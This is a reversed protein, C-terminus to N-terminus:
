HAWVPNDKVLTPFELFSVGGKALWGLTNSKGTKLFSARVETMLIAFHTHKKDLLLTKGYSGRATKVM